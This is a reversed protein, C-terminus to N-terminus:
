GGGEDNESYPVSAPPPASADVALRPPDAARLGRDRNAPPTRRTSAACTSGGPPSSVPWPGRQSSTQSFVRAKPTRFAQEEAANLVAGFDDVKEDDIQAAMFGLVSNLGDNGTDAHSGLLRTADDGSSSRRFAM